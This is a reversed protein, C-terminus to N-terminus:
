GATAKFPLITGDSETPANALEAKPKPWLWDHVHDVVAQLRDDDIQERYEEAMDGRTHGMILDIAPQDKAADGVTRFTHRLGYFGLGSRKLKLKRLLKEFETAIYDNFYILESGAAKGQRIWRRGQITLFLLDSDLTDKPVPRSEIVSQLAQITEPWLPIRRMIETKPRPYVVWGCALDLTSLTMEAIDGQGFGANCGLLIMARLQGKATELMHRVDDVTFLKSGRVHKAKRM